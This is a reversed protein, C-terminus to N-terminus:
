RSGGKAQTSGTAQRAGPKVAGSGGGLFIPALGDSWARHLGALDLTALLTPGIKVTLNGGTTVNGLPQVDVGYETALATWKESEGPPSEFVFGPTESLLLEHPALPTASALRQGTYTPSSAVSDATLTALDVDVGHGEPGDERVAMEFLASLLGGDSIDHASLVLGRQIAAMAARLQKTQEELPLSPVRGGAELGPRGWHRDRAGLLWLESGPARLRQTVAKSYDALTGFCAVIPSPAIARGRSSQNYLSVNGSVIPLPEAPQGPSGIAVCADRMGQLASAMDGLAVPVEPNGFNLCDTIALPVAGTAVVNRASEFVSLAGGWYPDLRGYDPNGDVSIALGLSEGSIPRLVGADAEGPRLYAHGQVEQDDGRYLPARSARNPRSVLEEAWAQWASAGEGPAEPDRVPAPDTRSAVQREAIPSDELIAHSLDVM